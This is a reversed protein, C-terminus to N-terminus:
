ATGGSMGTRGGPRGGRRGSSAARPGSGAGACPLGAHLQKGQLFHGLNEAPENRDVIKGKRHIRAANHAQDPGVARALGRNEVANGAIVRRLPAPDKKVALGNGAQLGVPHHFQANRTGKLADAQESLQGHQFVHQGSPM